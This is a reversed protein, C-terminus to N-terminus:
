FINTHTHSILILDDWSSTNKNPKPLSPLFLAHALQLPFLPLYTLLSPIHAPLPFSSRLSPASSPPSLRFSSTYFAPHHVWHPPVTPLSSLPLLLSRSPFLRPLTSLFYSLISPLITPPTLFPFFPPLPLSFPTTGVPVVGTRGTILLPPHPPLM